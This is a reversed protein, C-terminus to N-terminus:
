GTYANEQQGVAYKQGSAHLNETGQSVEIAKESHMVDLHMWTHQEDWVQTDCIIVLNRRPKDAM